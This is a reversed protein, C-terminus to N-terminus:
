VFHLRRSARTIATYLWRLYNDKWIYKDRNSHKIFVTDFESGQAKHCTICYGYDVSPGLAGKSLEMKKALLFSPSPKEVNLTETNVVKICDYRDSKKNYFDDLSDAVRDEGDPQILIERNFNDFEVNDIITAMQGNFCFEKPNNELFIIRENQCFKKEVDSITRKRIRQNIDVRSRNTSCIIVSNRFYENTAVKLDDNFENGKTFTYGMDNSLEKKPFNLNGERAMASLRIIPNEAAQRLVKELRLHPSQMLNLQSKIPPLQGHDGVFLIKFKGPIQMLADFLQQPVMSAEDVVVLKQTVWETRLRHIFKNSYEDFFTMYVFSHITQAPEIDKRRLVECAKGTYAIYVIRNQIDLEKALWKILTTKGTGAYGGLTMYNNRPTNSKFWKKIQKLVEAQEKTPTM